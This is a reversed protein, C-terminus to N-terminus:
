RVQEEGVQVPQEIDEVDVRVGPKGDASREQAYRWESWKASDDYVIGAGAIPVQVVRSYPSSKPGGIRKGYTRPRQMADRLGKCAAAMNDEDFARQWRGKPSKGMLRTITVRRRQRFAEGMTGDGTHEDIALEDCKARLMTVAQNRARRYMASLAPNSGNVIRLNASSLDIPLAFTWRM